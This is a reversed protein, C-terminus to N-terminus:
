SVASCTLWIHTAASCHPHYPIHWVQISHKVTTATTNNQMIRTEERQTQWNFTTHNM